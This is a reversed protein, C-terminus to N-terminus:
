GEKLLGPWNTGILVCQAAAKTIGFADALESMSVNGKLYSQRAEVVERETLVRPM